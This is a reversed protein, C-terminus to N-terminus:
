GGVYFEGIVTIGDELYIPITKSTPTSSIAEALSDVGDNLDSSKVYGLVSGSQVLILDPSIESDKIDPGYSEGNKNVPYGNIRVDSQSPIDLLFSKSSLSFGAMLAVSCLLSFLVLHKSRVIHQM